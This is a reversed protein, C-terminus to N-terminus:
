ANIMAEPLVASTPIRTSTKVWEGRNNYWATYDSGGNDLVAYYYQDDIKMDDSEVPEYKMWSTKLAKPNKQAFLTKVSDSVKDIGASSSGGETKATTAVTAVPVQDPM